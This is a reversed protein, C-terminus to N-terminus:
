NDFAAGQAHMLVYCLEGGEHISGPTPASVHSPIGGPTSFQRFLARMGPEDLSIDPYVESYEGDLYANAVLAPGGHGPGALYIIDADEQQILRNLHAYIFSLGPSTGWHGLLRPKIHEPKLPERLLPNEQLYIQGITLYNAARWWADIQRLAEKSLPSGEPRVGGRAAEGRVATSLTADFTYM